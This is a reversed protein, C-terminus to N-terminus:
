FRISTSNKHAPLQEVTAIEEITKRIRNLGQKTCQQFQMWKGFADVGLPPYSKAMGGTPLIHNAGTAYDGASKSTYDGIFISGANNIKKSINLPNRTMIELHEPAYNNTFNVADELSDAVAILGYRKLSERIRSATPLTKLQQEIEQETKRAIEPSTTVLVCASDDGHEGDALLDSAIFSPNATEDAIIFIESPGAPMDISTTELALM